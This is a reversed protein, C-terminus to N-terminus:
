RGVVIRLRQTETQAREVFAIAQQVTPFSTMHCWTGFTYRNAPNDDFREVRADM